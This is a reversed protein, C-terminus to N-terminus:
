HTPDQSEGRRLRHLLRYSRGRINLVHINHLLRQRGWPPGQLLPNYSERILACSVLTDSRSREVSPQFALDFNALTQGTPMGSPTISTRIRREERAALEIELVADPLQHLSTSEKIAAPVTTELQAASHPLGLKLLRDRTVDLNVKPAMRKAAAATGVVASM